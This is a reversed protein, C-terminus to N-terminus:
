DDRMVLPLFIHRLEVEDAGIDYGDNMPRLDGDIDATVGANSAADIAASGLGIHYDLAAPNEFLPDGSVENSSSVGSGYDTTNGYFLTHDAIVTLSAPNTNTIGAAHGAIINNTLTLAVREGWVYLGEGGGGPNDAITNHLLTAASPYTASGYVRLGDGGSGARNGAIVNNTLALTSGQAVCVGSGMDAANDIIWNGDLSLADGYVVYLGGGAGLNPTRAANGRVTNGSVTLVGYQIYFGGGSGNSVTSGVNGAVTNSSLMADSWYLYLGGGQGVGSTSATNSMIVNGSLMADSYDLSVGGGRGSGGTSATNSIITNGDVIAQDCRELHIGGGAVSASSSAVNDTIVNDAITPHALRCYIGGGADQGGPITGGLGTADGGTIIFGEITPSIDGTISIVRGHRQADLTTLNIAPNPPDTFSGDYGGRLTVTKTLAVVYGVNVINADTYVGGAVWIEDGTTAVEVARQVTRCRDAITSCDKSDDGDTAVFKIPPRALAAPPRGALLWLLALSLGLGLGLALAVLRSNHKM